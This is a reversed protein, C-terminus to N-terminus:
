KKNQTFFEKAQQRYHSAYMHFARDLIKYVEEESYLKDAAWEAGAKFSYVNYSFGPEGVQGLLYLDNAKAAEEVTEQKSM